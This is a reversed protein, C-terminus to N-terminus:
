RSPILDLSVDAGQRRDSHWSPNETTSREPRPPCRPWQPPDESATPAPSRVPAPGWGRPLTRLSPPGSYSDRAPVGELAQFSDHRERVQDPSGAQRQLPGCCQGDAAATISRVVSARACVGATVTDVRVMMQVVDAGRVATVLGLLPVFASGAYVGCPGPRNRPHRRAM